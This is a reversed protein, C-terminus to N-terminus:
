VSAHYAGPPLDPQRSLTASISSRLFAPLVALAAPLFRACASALWSRWTMVFYWIFFLGVNLRGPGIALVLVDEKPLLFAPAPAAAGGKLEAVQLNVVDDRLRAPAGVVNLVQLQQAAM